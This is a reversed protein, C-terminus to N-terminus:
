ARKKILNGIGYGLPLSLCWFLFFGWAGWELLHTLGWAPIWGMLLGAALGWWRCTKRKRSAPNIAGISETFQYM